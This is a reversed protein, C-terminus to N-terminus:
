KGFKGSELLFCIAFECGKSFAKKTFLANVDCLSDILEEVTNKQAKDLQADLKEHIQAAKKTLAREDDTDIVACEDSLYEYWLKELTNKM